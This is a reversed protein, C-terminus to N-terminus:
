FIQAKLLVCVNLNEIDEVIEAEEYMNLRNNGWGKDVRYHAMRNARPMDLSIGIEIGKARGKSQIGTKM